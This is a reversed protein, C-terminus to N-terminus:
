YILRHYIYWCKGYRCLAVNCTLCGWRTQTAKRRKQQQQRARSNISNADLQQLPGQKRPRQSSQSRPGIILGQCASCRTKAGRYGRKHQEVPILINGPMYRKRSSGSQGYSNFIGHALARLWRSQSRYPPWSPQGRLQLIFSNALATLLLFDWTLARAPGRRQRHRPRIISRLHDAIDVANMRDNYDAAISPLSLQLVSIQGFKQKIQRSYPQTSNPRKRTRIITEHGTYVTSLFLVLANDKWAIQNVKL